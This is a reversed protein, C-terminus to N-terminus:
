LKRVKGLLNNNILIQYKLIGLSGPIETVCIEERKRMNGMSDTMVTGRPGDNTIPHFQENNKSGALSRAWDNNM